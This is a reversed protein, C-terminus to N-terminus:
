HNHPRKKASDSARSLGSIRAYPARAVPDYIVETNTWRDHWAHRSPDRLIALYGLGFCLASVLAGLVRRVAVKFTLDRSGNQTVRIALFRMGPTAGGLAWFTAIILGGILFALVGVAIAAPPSFHSGSTYSFVSAIVSSALSFAVFLLGLDIAAAVLRTALGAQDTESDPDRRRTVKEMADDLRETLTTLRVGMDTILGTTQATIAARIEPAGAIREVLMQVEDSALVETWAQEAAESDLVQKVVEALETSSLGVAEAHSAMARELARGIAPSQLARLIAEEVAEDLARNVGTAQAVRGAGKAGVSLLRAVPPKGGDEEM